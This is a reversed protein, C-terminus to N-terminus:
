LTQMLFATCGCKRKRRWRHGHEGEGAAETVVMANKRPYEWEEKRLQQEQARSHFLPAALVVLNPVKTYQDRGGWM